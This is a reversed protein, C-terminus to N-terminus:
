QYAARHELYSMVGNVVFVILIVLIIYSYLVPTNFTEAAWSIRYGIGKTAALMEGAIVGILSFIMGMRIGTMISPLSFRFIVKLSLDWWNAGLSKSVQLFFPDVSRVGTAANIAVPFFGYFGAFAIKSLSGIGFILITLPYFLIVPVAYIALVVPEFVNGAFKLSGLTFGVSLGTVLSIGFAALFEFITVKLHSHTDSSLLVKPLADAMGSLTPLNIHSVVGYHSLLFWALVILGVTLVQPVRAGFMM